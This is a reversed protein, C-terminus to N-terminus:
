AESDRSPEAEPEPAAADRAVGGAECRGDVVCGEALALSPARLLGNVRATPALEIRRRATADGELRGAVFLDDVEIRARVVASEGIQLAGWAVVEGTFEGDIHARGRFSVLGDFSTGPEVLKAPPADTRPVAV